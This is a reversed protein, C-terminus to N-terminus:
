PVTVVIQNSAAGPGGSNTARVRVFYTGTPAFATLTTATSGTAFSAVNSLGSASGAEVIYGTIQGTAPATWNLTVQNGSRTFSLATPAAPAPPGVRLTVENSSESEGCSSRSTARLFFTGDPVVGSASTVPSGLDAMFFDSAGPSTGVRLVYTTPTPGAAPATWSVTVLSGAVVPTLLTPPNTPVGCNTEFVALGFTQQGHLQGDSATITVTYNGAAITGSVTGTTANVIVTSPLGSVAFTIADGDPDFASLQAGIPGAPIVLNGPNAFSPPQNPLAVAVEDSPLGFEGAANYGFVVLHYTVGPALDVLVSTASGADVAQGYSGPSSDFYVAYGATFADSNPDWLVRVPRAEALGAGVLAQLLFGSIWVRSGRRAQVVGPSALCM